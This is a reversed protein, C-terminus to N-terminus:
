IFLKSQQEGITYKKMIENLAKFLKCKIFNEKIPINTYIKELITKKIDDGLENWYIKCVKSIILSGVRSIDSNKDELWSYINEMSSKIIGLMYERHNTDIIAMFALLCSHKLKPDNSIFWQSIQVEVIKKLTNLTCCMSIGNLLKVASNYPQWEDEAEQKDRISFIHFCMNLLSDGYKIFYENTKWGKEIYLAEIDALTIFLDIILIIIKNDKPLSKLSLVMLTLIDVISQMNPALESYYYKICEHIAYIGTFTLKETRKVSLMLSLLFNRKNDDNMYEKCSAISFSLAGLAELEVNEDIREGINNTIGAIILELLNNPIINPCVDQMIMKITTMAALRINSDEQTDLITKLNILVDFYQGQEFEIQCISSILSSVSTRVKFSRSGQGTFIRQRFSERDVLSLSLWNFNIEPKMLYNKMITSYFQRLSEDKADDLIFNVCSFIFDRYNENVYKELSLELEKNPLAKLQTMIKELDYNLQNSM